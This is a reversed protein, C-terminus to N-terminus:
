KYFTTGSKLDKRLFSGASVICNEGIKAGEKIVSNSGIFSGAGIEVGGNVVASTSVHVNNGIITEHEIISGTNIICNKGIKVESNIFSKHMIITGENVQSNESKYSTPSVIIPLNFGIKKLKNFLNIRIYYNKIFGVAVFANKTKEFLKILDADNGIHSYKIKDNKIALEESVIGLIKYKNEAEIVEICSIAHGGNGIVLLNNM